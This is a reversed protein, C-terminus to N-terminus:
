ILTLLASEFNKVFLGTNFLPATSSNAALSNRLENLKEPERALEVALAEYEELGATILQPLEIAKLLSAAVRGAFAKGSCTLVPLGARLSDIATTHANYPTTDLFLDALRHRALHESPDPMRPAYIIRQPDIGRKKAEMHLNNRFSESNESLWLVSGPVAQLIRTWSDFITSNIKYSNNFCCYVFGDAPLGFDVRSMPKNSIIRKSDDVMYTYPMYVVKETYYQQDQVPILTHDAIIFDIFDAGQTGPYGLYSVQVPAARLAFIGIRSDGTHGGLDIAIQIGIERAMQVVQEDSLDTVDIFKDFAAQLRVRLPDNAEAAGFSFAYVEFKARDHIEFLEALLQAVPHTKFDASFYGIRIKSSQPLAKPLPALKQVNVEDTFARAAKLHLYPEDVMALFTFPAVMARGTDVGDALQNILEPLESWDAIKLKADVLHSYLL